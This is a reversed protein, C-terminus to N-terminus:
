DGEYLDIFDQMNGARSLNDEIYKVLEPKAEGYALEVFLEPTIAGQSLAPLYKNIIDHKFYKRYNEEATKEDESFWRIRFEVPSMLGAAVLGKDRELEAGKDEIISDDFDIEIDSYKDPNLKVPKATWMESAEIIAIALKRLAADVLIQHKKLSKYAQSNESIIQTATPTSVPNFKYFTEGLGVKSSLISLETNLADIHEGSRLAGSKDEILQKGDNTAPLKYYFTDMPNFTKSRAGDKNHVAWAEDSVHLRKRGGIFENDFSDYKIDIAHLTDLSTAFISTGLAADYEGQIDNNSIFPRIMQFWATKSKTDFEYERVVKNTTKNVVYNYIVYNGNEDRLHLIYKKEESGDFVFAVETVNKNEVTLPRFKFRDVFDITIKASDKKITGKDGVLVGDVGIVLAGLGLAFSKEVAENAKVWFNAETLIDQMVLNADDDPLIIDCEENMLMNAWDECVKKAMNLSKLRVPIYDRGNYYRYNHIDRVNGNYWEAWLNYDVTDVPMKYDPKIKRVFNIIRNM